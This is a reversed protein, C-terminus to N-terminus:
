SKSVTQKGLKRDLKGINVCLGVMKRPLLSDQFIGAQRLPSRLLHFCLMSQVFM